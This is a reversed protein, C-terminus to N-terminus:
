SEIFRRKAAVVSKRVNSPSTGGFSTRSSISSVPDLVDFLDATIKPEISQLEELGLERLLCQKKEALKVIVGTVYHAERFPM